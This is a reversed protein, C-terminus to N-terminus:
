QVPEPRPDPATTNEPSGEPDEGEQVAGILPHDKVGEENETKAIGAQELQTPPTFISGGEEPVLGGKTDNASPASTSEFSQTNGKETKTPVQAQDGLQTADGLVLTEPQGEVITAKQQYADVMTKTHLNPNFGTTAVTATEPLKADTDGSVEKASPLIDLWFSGVLGGKAEDHSSHRVPTTISWARAFDITNLFKSKKDALFAVTLSPEGDEGEHEEGRVTSLVVGPVFTQEGGSRIAISVFDGQQVEKAAPM